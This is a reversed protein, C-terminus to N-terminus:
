FACRGGSSTGDPTAYVGIGRQTMEVQSALEAWSRARVLDAMSMTVLSGHRDFFVRLADQHGFRDVLVRLTNRIEKIVKHHEDYVFGAENGKLWQEVTAADVAKQDTSLLIALEDTMLGTARIEALAEALTQYETPAVETSRRFLWDLLRNLM